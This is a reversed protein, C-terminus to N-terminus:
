FWRRVRNIIGGFEWANEPCLEMCCYCNICMTRDIHPYGDDDLEIAGQPCEKMCIKCKNCKKRILFLKQSTFYPFIFRNIFYGIGTANVLRYNNPMKFDPIPEWKGEVKIRDLDTEGLNRERARKLILFSHPNANMIGAMLSDISVADNSVLIYGVKRVEGASPGNGEMGIVGDMITLEPPRISYIDLLANTFSEISPATRHVRAKDGGVIIGFMNKIGGTLGTLSHTKFKPLNIIYDAEFVQSAVSLYKLPSSNLEVRKPSMSFNVFFEGAVDKIGSKKAARETAGYGSVGPSDGILPKGGKRLVCELVVRCVEPHTTVGREPPFPSLINPKILVKKRNLSPLIDMLLPSLKGEVESYSDCRLM